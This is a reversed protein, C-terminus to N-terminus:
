WIRFFYSMHKLTLNRDTIRLLYTLQRIYCLILKCKIASLEKLFQTTEQSCEWDELSLKRSTQQCTRISPNDLQRPQTQVEWLRDLQIRADMLGQNNLVTHRLTSIYCEHCESFSNYFNNLFNRAAQGTKVIEDDWLFRNCTKHQM